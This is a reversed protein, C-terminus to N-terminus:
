AVRFEFDPWRSMCFLLPPMNLKLEPHRLRCGEGRGLASARAPAAPPDRTERPRPRPSVWAQTRSRAPLLQESWEVTAESVRDLSAAARLEQGEM